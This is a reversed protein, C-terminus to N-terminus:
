LNLWYNMKIVLGRNKPGWIDTAYNDTYVIFLDSLPKFRWQIRSNINFNERQTNYQLFTTWFLDRSFNLEFKPGVLFLKTEGFEEPFVLDNQVFRVSFNGWPQARYRLDVSYESRDGNFFGGRRVGLSYSFFKRSDSRYEAEVYNFVYKGAPLPNESTFGFPFILGQEEHSVSLEFRSSNAMSLNYAVTTINQILDWGDKTYDLVNRASFTHANITSNDTPFIKYSARTFGHNFGIIHTRDEVADYHQARPIFGMDARYNNGIGALNTYFGITRSDFGVAVNYFYNDNNLQHSWSKGYGGFAQWRGDGSRYSYELGATRNFDDDLFDGERYAQRNHFYGKVISRGFVQQHATVSTYNQGLFEDKAKTQLNMVGIRLDKNINGSLRAGYTIPIANGDDDLGIRRSFFPRMPPIGFDSYLDSNELFFLRREPFRINVTTLNTVQEDVDVQSFDPNLTLDLNLGSSIAIKADGGIQFNNDSPENNEIDKFTSTLAYPIISINSKSKVPSEDWVLAGTYGLDVGRFQVPVPSWMHYSNTASHGRLFNIGWIKNENFRLSKFPIAIEITWRDELIQVESIWINDWAGNVGQSGGGSGRTGTQGTILSESQVGSSNANFNFGNTKENVPDFVVGFADGQWFARADRKLSPMVYPGAGHCIAAVYIFKDDYTIMAETQNEKVARRDDIPFSMWFNTAREATQWVAEDLQGDVRIADDTKHIHLQYEEQLPTLGQANIGLSTAMIVLSVVGFSLIKNM